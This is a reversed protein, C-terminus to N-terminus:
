YQVYQYISQPDLVMKKKMKVNFLRRCIFTQNLIICIARPIFVPWYLCYAKLAAVATFRSAYLLSVVEM